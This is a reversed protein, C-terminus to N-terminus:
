IEEKLEQNGKSVAQDILDVMDGHSLPKIQPQPANKIAEIIGSALTSSIDNFGFQDHEEKTPLATGELSRRHPAFTVYKGYIERTKHLFQKYVTPNLCQMNALGIHLEGVRRPFYYSVVNKEGVIANIFNITNEIKKMKYLGYVCLMTANKKKLEIETLRPGRSEKAEARATFPTIVHMVEHFYPIKHKEMKEAQKPTAAILWAWTEGTNKQVNTVEYDYGRRFNEALVEFYLKSSTTDLLLPNDVKCSLLINRAIFDWIKCVKELTSKDDLNLIFPRIGKLM